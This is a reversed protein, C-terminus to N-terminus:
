RDLSLATLEPGTLVRNWVRLDDLDGDFYYVFGQGITKREGGVALPGSTTALTVGTRTTQQQDVILTVTSIGDYVAAMFTWAGVAVNLTSTTDACGAWGFGHNAPHGLGFMKATCDDLGWHVFVNSNPRGTTPTPASIRPKVWIALTRPASGLPMKSPPGIQVLSPPSPAFRTAKTARGFRDTTAALNMATIDAAPHLGTADVALGDDFSMHLVLGNAISTPLGAEFGSASDPLSASDAAGPGDAKADTAAKADAAATADAPAPADSADASGIVPGGDGHGEEHGTGGADGHSADASDVTKPPDDTADEDILGEACAALGVIM